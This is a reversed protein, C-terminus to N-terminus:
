VMDELKMTKVIKYGNGDDRELDASKRLNLIFDKRTDKLADANNPIEILKLENKKFIKKIINEIWKIM